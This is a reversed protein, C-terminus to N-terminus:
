PADHIPDAGIADLAAQACALDQAVTGGSVAIGGIFHGAALIPLGGGLPAFRKLQHLTQQETASLHALFQGCQGSPLRFSAVTYAKNRALEMSHLSAGPMRHFALPHGAADVVAINALIGIAEAKEAAATLCALAARGTLSPQDHYIPTDPM